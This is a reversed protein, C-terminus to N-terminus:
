PAFKVAKQKSYMRMPTPTPQDSTGSGDQTLPIRELYAPKLRETTVTTPESKIDIKFVKDTIRELIKYPGEYPCDFPKKSADLRIFVHTCTSLDKLIFARPKM